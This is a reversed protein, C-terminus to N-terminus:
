CWSPSPALISPIAFGPSREIFMTVSFLGFTSTPKPWFPVTAPVLVKGNRTMPLLAVPPCLAGLGNTQSQSPVHCGRVGGTLSLSGYPLGVPTRASSSPLLSRWETIPHIPTSCGRLMVGRALPCVDMQDKMVLSSPWSRASLLCIVATAVSVPASEVAGTAQCVMSQYATWRVTRLSWARITFATCAPRHPLTRAKCCRRVWENLPLARATCLTVFLSPLFVGPTSPQTHSVGSFFDRAM